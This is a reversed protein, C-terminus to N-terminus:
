EMSQHQKFSLDYLGDENISLTLVQLDHYITFFHPQENDDRFLVNICGLGQANAISSVCHSVRNIHVLNSRNPVKAWYGILNKKCYERLWMSLPATVSFDTIESFINAQPDQKTHYIIKATM